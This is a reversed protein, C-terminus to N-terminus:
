TWCGSSENSALAVGSKEERGAFVQFLFEAGRRGLEMSGLEDTCLLGVRDWRAIPKNPQKEHAAEVPENVLMGALTGVM